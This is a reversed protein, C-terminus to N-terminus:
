DFMDLLSTLTTEGKQQNVIPDTEGFGEWEVDEEPLEELFRSYSTEIMEGFQKRKAALTLTLSRQARTVGVYALRREEEINGEEVSTKHPLIDEELGMIFVHPFELGKAAHLTLLQVQDNIEEEEQQELIDLLMIKSIAEKLSLAEESSVMTKEISQLLFHVNEMKREAAQPSSTQQHLWALYDIDNVMDHLVKTPAETECRKTVNELWRSFQQLHKVSSAPLHQELGVEKSAQYLSIARSQAYAGLAELTTTGIQRRPTNIIRLFANDDDPNVLLKFTLCLTKSKQALSSHLGVM